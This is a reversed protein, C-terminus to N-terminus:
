REEREIRRHVCDALARRIRTLMMRVAGARKGLRDAIEQTSLHQFYFQRIVDASAGPLGRVCQQLARIEEEARQPEAMTAETTQLRWDALFLQLRDRERRNRRAERRLHQRVHNRAIGLLWSDLTGGQRFSPLHEYASLFVEQALDDVVDPFRVYRGLFARVLPHFRRVLETFAETSGDKAQETLQLVDVM